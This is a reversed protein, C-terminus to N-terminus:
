LNWRFLFDGKWEQTQLYEQEQREDIFKIYGQKYLDWVYNYTSSGTFRFKHLIDILQNVSLQSKEMYAKRVEEAYEFYYVSPFKSQIKSKCAECYHYQTLTGAPLQIEMNCERCNTLAGVRTLCVLCLISEFRQEKDSDQTAIATEYRCKPCYIGIEGNNKIRDKAKNVAHSFYNTIELLKKWIDDGIEISFDKKLENKTFRTLFFVCNTVLSNVANPNLEVKYHEVENRTTILNRIFSLEEKDLQIRAVKELRLLLTEVDVTKNEKAIDQYIFNEHEMRLREKLLLTVGQALHLITYKYDRLKNQSDIYHEISHKISDIANEFLNLELNAM